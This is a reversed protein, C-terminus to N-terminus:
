QLASRRGGSCLVVPIILLLESACKVTSEPAYAPDIDWRSMPVVTQLNAGGTLAAWFAPPGAAAGDNAADGATGPYRCAVSVIRTTATAESSANSVDDGQLHCRLCTLPSLSLAAQLSAALHAHTIWGTFFAHKRACLM